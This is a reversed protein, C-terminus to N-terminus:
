KTPSKEGSKQGQSQEGSTTAPRGAPNPPLYQWKERQKEVFPVGRKMWDPAREGKLHHAFFEATRRSFDRRNARKRLGHGAGVYNCLYAEKGLRRLAVFLEIGQYWPVAGDQDNHLILMPTSIKDATFIPSNELFRLPYRWLTGGIRSQTREYQFMRSMGTSWRIGGYASVMNSVPAGSEIAAFLNTRTALYASQYGGWSHGAIGIADRKVFGKAVLSLVGPVVCEFCSQGPYGDRYVIDPMFFLYGNSAYYSPNPSSGARPAKYRHLGSSLKEYMYVLMPYQKRADFGEPKVLIGSLPVGSASDWRVLEARGWRVNRQQPNADTLKRMGHFVTNATWLNPFEEFTSLTFLLRDEDKAKTLRRGFAKDLMVLEYPVDSGALTETFYGSAKSENDFASLLLKQKPDVFRQEPDLNVYRFTLSKKRGVGDTLCAHGSGDLQVAWIDYRDNLLVQKGGEVWGAVGYDRAPSPTDQDERYFAVGVDKTIVSREGTALNMAHWQRDAFWLLWGGDPSVSAKGRQRELVQRRVGTQTDIKYYDTYRGDWSVEKAWRQSSQGLAVSGDDAILRVSDLSEDGIPVVDNRELSFACLMMRRREQGVRKAQMPQLLPDQWHWLDLNVKDDPHMDPAKAKPPKAAGVLLVGGDRSFALPLADSVRRGAPWGRTKTQVVRPGALPLVFDWTFVRVERDDDSGRSPNAETKNKDAQPRPAKWFFALTREDRDTRFGSFDGPGQAIRAHEAKPNLTGARVGRSKGRQEAEVLWLHKAKELVGFSTVKDWRKEDGTSLDRLVVPSGKSRASAGGRRLGPAAAPKAAKQATKETAKEAPKAAAKVAAKGGPKQTSKKQPKAGPEKASAAAIPSDLQYVVVSPGKSPVQFRRVGKIIVAIPRAANLDVIGMANKLGPDSPAGGGGGGRPGRPGRPGRRRAGRRARGGGGGRAGGRNKAAARRDKWTPQVTFLLWRGDKTFRGGSGRPHRFVVDGNATRRVILEGDGQGPTLSYVVFVGDRSLRPNAISRWVDYDDQNISRKQATLGASVLSLSLLSLATITIRSM